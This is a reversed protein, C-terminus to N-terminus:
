RAADYRCRSRNRHRLVLQFLQMQSSRFAGACCTLYYLWMRRFREEYHARLEPWAAEFRAKWAMLTTDYDPGFNHVDEIIFHEECAVALQRLSPVKGNPFIYRDIWPDTELYSRDTGITHLVFLGDEELVRKAAEFYAPYNKLGVHEFMGISVLKDFRGELKRYDELHIDVPLGRCHELAWARQEKSVTIGTVRVGYRETAHRAFSGWGCGIDLVHEGAQLELKRCTLDLKNVQAQDLDAADKWYGCSYCMTDGLM